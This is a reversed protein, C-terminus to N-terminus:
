KFGIYDERNDIKITMGRWTSFGRYKEDFVTLNSDRLDNFLDKIMKLQKRGLIIISPKKNGEMIYRDEAEILPDLIPM